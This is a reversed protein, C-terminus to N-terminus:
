PPLVPLEEFFVDLFDCNIPVSYVSSSFEGVEEVSSSTVCAFFADCGSTVLHHAELLSLFPRHHLLLSGRFHLEPEGKLRFM